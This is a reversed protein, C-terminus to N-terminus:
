KTGGSHSRLKGFRDKTFLADKTDTNMNGLMFGAFALLGVSFMYKFKERLRFM